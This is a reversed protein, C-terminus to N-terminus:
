QVKSCDMSPSIKYPIRIGCKGPLGAANKISAASASVAVTKLCTCISQRDSTTEAMGYLSKSSACCNSPVQHGGYMVYNLCPSLTSALTSCLIEAEAHPAVVVAIVAVLYLIKIM